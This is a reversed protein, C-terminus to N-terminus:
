KEQGTRSVDQAVGPRGSLDSRVPGARPRDIARPGLGTVGVSPRCRHPLRRLRLRKSPRRWEDNSNNNALLPLCGAVSSSKPGTLM